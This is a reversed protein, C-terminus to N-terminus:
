YECSITKELTQTLDNKYCITLLLSTYSTLNRLLNFLSILKWDM